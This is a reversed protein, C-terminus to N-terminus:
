VFLDAMIEDAIILGADSLRVIEGTRLLNGAAIHDASKQYFVPLQRGFKEELLSLDLGDNLLRLRLMTYENRLDTKTLAEVVSEEGLLWDKLSNVNTRRLEGETSVASPGLGIYDAPAWYNMNHQCRRGNRAYNSIEYHEFGNEVLMRRLSFLEEPGIDDPSPLTGEAVARYIPTNEEITLFYASIHQLPFRKLLQCVDSSIDDCGPVGLIFDAGVNEIKSLALDLASFVSDLGARRGLIKLEPQKLRQVGISLRIGPLGCLLDAMDKTLTEPNTEFTWETLGSSDVHRLVIDILRELGNRGLATPNGGGFFVTSFLASRESLRLEAETALRDLYAEILQSDPIESYFACYDCKSLCFPVHVYLGCLNDSMM